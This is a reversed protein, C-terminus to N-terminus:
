GRGANGARANCYLRVVGNKCVGGPAPKQTSVYGSGIVRCRLGSAILRRKAVRMPLGRLDPATTASEAESSGNLYLSIVEDQEILVGPDPDQAVVDGGKGKCVVNLELANAREMAAAQHLRLFNPTTILQSAVVEPEIVDRTLVHDFLSSSNAIAESVRRFVPGASVGGFRYQWNPEDLMVLCVIQPDDHPAFGIFSAIFKNPLYGGRPAAKEATGTKGSVKMFSVAAQGGTGEEVVSRCFERLRRATQKSVVRRVRVAKFEETKGTNDDIITKTIRPKMLIGDNAIAAFAAVMQLPTVAIEQGFAMTIQTRKSWEDVPAVRGASEGLLRIGTKAGFGFLRIFEFFEMPELALSAKAMVINSSLVFGERFTLHAHPHADSIVAVGMDAHGNEADFVDFSKAKDTQLLAAATVLKFTSGPEYVNSISNITWLSDIISSAERSGAGPSEALALIEGTERDVIIVCGGRAGTKEVAANLELEVVQQLEADITLVVHHGDTPKKEAYTHYWSSRYRGDRQVVEWGPVGSLEEDFAAEVGAMGRNDHGVFGIIKAAVDGFPYVRDAELHIGIGKIKRIEGVVRESLTCQRKVWVFSKGSTLKQRISRRSVGLNRSLVSVVRNRDKVERPHLSVSCSRISLALPRGFRDFIGGRVAPVERAVKYQDKAIEQFHAHSFVQVQVLRVWIAVIMIIFLGGVIYLRINRRRKTM